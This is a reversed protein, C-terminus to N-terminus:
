SDGHHNVLEGLQGGWVKRISGKSREGDCKNCQAQVVKPEAEDM